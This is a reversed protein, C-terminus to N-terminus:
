RGGTAPQRSGGAAIKVQELGLFLSKGSHQRVIAARRAGSRLAWLLWFNISSRVRDGRWARAGRRSHQVLTDNTGM